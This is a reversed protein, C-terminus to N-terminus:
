YHDPGRALLSRFFMSLTKMMISVDLALSWRSRYLLDLDV